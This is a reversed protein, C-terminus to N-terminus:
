PMEYIRAKGFSVIFMEYKQDTFNDAAGFITFDDNVNYHIKMNFVNFDNLKNGDNADQNTAYYDSIIMGGLHFNFKSIKYNLAMDFKNKVIGATKEGPDLYTYGMYANLGNIIEKELSLEIGKFVYSGSNQFEFGPRSVRPSVQIINDGNMVFASADFIIDFFGANFGIEYSNLDEAELDENSIPLIYLDNIYPNRFGKSYVARVALDEIIDYSLGARPAFANPTFASKTDEDYNFRIGAFSKLKDNIQYEDLAFIAFDSKKWEGIKPGGAIVKGIAHRYELGYKLTNNEFIEKSFHAHFGYISDKSNFGDSFKHDGFDGFALLSMKGSDFDRVYRIDAGGRDYTYWSAPVPTTSGLVRAEPEMEKGSFYKGGIILESNQDFKYGFKLYYDAANYGSNKLHGDSSVKEAAGYYIFRDSVGGLSTFYNQTNYSGYSARIDAEFPEKPLATIINIAGGFGDSGYLVSDPGKTIEIREINGSLITQSLACGYLGMKEPRGDVFLGIRRFSDGIGRITIDSKIQSSAKTVFIGTESSIHDIAIPANQNKIQYPTILSGSIFDSKAEGAYDLSLFVEDNQAYVFSACLLVSLFLVSLKRM